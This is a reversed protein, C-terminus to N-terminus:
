IGSQDIEFARRCKMAVSSNVRSPEGRKIYNKLKAEDHKM